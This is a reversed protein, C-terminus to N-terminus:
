RVDGIVITPRGGSSIRVADAAVEQMGPRARAAALAEASELTWTFQQYYPAPGDATPRFRTVTYPPDGEPSGMAEHLLQLHARYDVEFQDVDTPQPYLVVLQVSGPAVRTAPDAAAQARQGSACGPTLALLLAALVATALGLPRHSLSM